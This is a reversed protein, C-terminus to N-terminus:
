SDTRCAELAKSIVSPVEKGTFSNMAEEHVIDETLVRDICPKASEPASTSISTVMAKRVDGTCTDMIGYLEEATKEDLGLGKFPGQNGIMEPTIGADVWRDEGIKDVFGQAVCDRDEEPLGNGFVSKIAEEYTDVPNETTSTSTSAGNPDPSETTKTTSTTTQKTSGGEDDSSCSSVIGFALLASLLVVAPTRTSGFRSM